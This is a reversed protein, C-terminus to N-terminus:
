DTKRDRLAKLLPRGFVSASVGAEAPARDLRHLPTGRRSLGRIGLMCSPRGVASTEDEQERGLRDGFPYAFPVSDVGLRGRLEQIPEVIEAQIEETALRSCFPHTRTHLGVQHGARRWRELGAWDVYPRYEELFEELPPMECAKWLADAYEDKRSMPWVLTLSTQEDIGRLDVGPLVRECLRHFERLFTADGRVARIASFKHQWMLHQNGVCAVVVFHTARVGLEDLVDEAGSRMLDCGDDFTVAVPPRGVVPVDLGSLRLMEDLSVMRFFRRLLM